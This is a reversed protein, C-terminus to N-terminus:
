RLPITTHLWICLAEADPLAKIEQHLRELEAVDAELLLQGNSIFRSEAMTGGKRPQPNNRQAVNSPIFFLRSLIGMTNQLANRSKTGQFVSGLKMCQWRQYALILTKAFKQEPFIAERMGLDQPLM